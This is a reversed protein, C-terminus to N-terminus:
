GVALMVGVVAVAAGALRALQSRGSVITGILIGIGHLFATALAFGLSYLMASAEVPMEAGHAHGHFVALAGVLGMAAGVSWTRGLAVASGLVVISATIGAEATPAHVGMLGIGGGAAMMIVFSAPVAWLARGGLSAAFLGVAVMALVHDLGNGPHMFGATFDSTTGVGTHAWAPAAAVAFAIALTFRKLSM